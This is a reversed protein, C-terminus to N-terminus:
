QKYGKQILKIKNILKEKFFYPSIIKFERGFLLLRQIFWFENLVMAKVIIFDNTKEIIKENNEPSFEKASSGFVMYQVEYSDSNIDTKLASVTNIKKIREVNLISTREYKYSYCWLYLRTNEYTMKQPIVDIDEIGFQPSNYKLNVKKGIIKSNSVDTLIKIDIECLPKTNEVLSIYNQNKTLRFFKEYFSNLILVKKWSLENALRERILLLSDVEEKSLNLSFPHKILAYKFNNTKQPRNIECGISKLTNLTIRITDKSVSKETVNHKKVIEVLEDITRPKEILSALLLLTRFGTISIWVKDNNQEINEFLKKM